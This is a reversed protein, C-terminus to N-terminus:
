KYLIVIKPDKLDQKRVFCPAYEGVKYSAFYDVFSRSILKIKVTKTKSSGLDYEGYMVSHLTREIIKIYIIKGKSSIFKSFLNIYIGISTSIVIVILIDLIIFTVFVEKASKSIEYSSILNGFKFTFILFVILLISLISLSLIMWDFGYVKKINFKEM